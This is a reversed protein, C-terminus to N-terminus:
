CNAANHFKLTQETQIHLKVMFKLQFLVSFIIIYFQLHKFISKIKIVQNLKSNLTM